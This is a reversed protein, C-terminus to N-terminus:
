HQYTEHLLSCTVFFDFRWRHRNAKLPTHRTQQPSSNVPYRPFRVENQQNQPFLVRVLHVRAIDSMDNCHM